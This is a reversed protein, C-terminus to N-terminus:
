SHRRNWSWKHLLMLGNKELGRNQYPSSIIATQESSQPSLMSTQLWFQHYITRVMKQNKRMIHISACM